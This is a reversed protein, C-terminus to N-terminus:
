KSHVLPVRLAPVCWVAASVTLVQVTFRIRFFAWFTCARRAQRRRMVRRELRDVKFISQVYRIARIGAFEM